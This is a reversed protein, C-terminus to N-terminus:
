SAKKRPQPSPDRRVTNIRRTDIRELRRLERRELRRDSMDDFAEAVAYLVGFGILCATAFTLTPWFGFLAYFSIWFLAVCVTIRARSVKNSRRAQLEIDM